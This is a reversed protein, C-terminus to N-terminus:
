EVKIGNWTLYKDFQKLTSEDKVISLITLNTGIQIVSTQISVFLVKDFPIVQTETFFAAGSVLKM